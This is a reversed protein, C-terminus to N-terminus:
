AAAAKKAHYRRANEQNTVPELHDPNVCARTECLHDLQLGEPIPGVFLEYSVRHALAPSNHGNRSKRGIQIQGYGSRGRSATWLWCGTGEDVQVNLMFREKLTLPPLLRCVNCQSRIGGPVSCDHHFASLPKSERCKRCVRTETM